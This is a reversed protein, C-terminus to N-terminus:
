RESEADLMSGLLLEDSVSDGAVLVDDWSSSTASVSRGEILLLATSLAVLVAAAAALRPIARRCVRVVADGEAQERRRRLSEALMAPVADLLPATQPEVGETARELATRALERSREREDTM